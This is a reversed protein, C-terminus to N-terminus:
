IQLFSEAASETKRKKSKERENEKYMEKVKKEEM